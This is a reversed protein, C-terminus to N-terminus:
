LNIKIFLNMLCLRIFAEHQAILYRLRYKDRSKQVKTKM